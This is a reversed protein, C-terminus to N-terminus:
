LRPSVSVFPLLQMLYYWLRLPFCLISRGICRVGGYSTEYNPYFESFSRRTSVLISVTGWNVLVSVASCAMSLAARDELVLSPVDTVSGKGQLFRTWADGTVIGQHGMYVTSFAFMGITFALLISNQLLHHKHFRNTRLGKFMHIGLIWTSMLFLVLNIGYIITQLAFGHIWYRFKIPDLDDGLSRFQNVM